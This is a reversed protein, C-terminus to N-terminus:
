RQQLVKTQFSHTSQSLTRKIKARAAANWIGDVHINPPYRFCISRNCKQWSPPKATFKAKHEALAKGVDVLLSLDYFDILMRIRKWFKGLFLIYMRCCNRDSDLGYRDWPKKKRNGSKTLCYCCQAGENTSHSEEVELRTKISSEM